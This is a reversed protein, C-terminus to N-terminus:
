LKPATMQLDAKNFFLFLASVLALKTQFLLFTLCIIKNLIDHSFFLIFYFIMLLPCLAAQLQQSDSADLRISILFFFFLYFSPIGKFRALIISFVRCLIYETKSALTHNLM